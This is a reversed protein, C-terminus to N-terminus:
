HGHRQRYAEAYRELLSLLQDDTLKDPDIDAMVDKVARDEQLRLANITEKASEARIKRDDKYMWWFILGLLFLGTLLGLLYTHLRTLM